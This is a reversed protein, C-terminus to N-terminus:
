RFTRLEPEPLHPIGNFSFLLLDDPQRRFTTVACNYMVGALRLTRGNAVALSHAVWIAIPVASTFVAIAGGPACPPLTGLCRRVRTVFADWPEASSPYRGEIWANVIAADCPAWSHHIAHREDAAQRTLEAYQERFAPDAAALAPGVDRYVTDLDFENWNADVAAEPFEGGAARCAAAAETATERQRRLSGSVAASFVVRQRALYEGLRRAQLRGIESLADYEQRTGAQGHRILYISSM